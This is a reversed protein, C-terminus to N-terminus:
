KLTNLINNIKFNEDISNDLRFILKPTNRIHIKDSIMYRLYSSAKKLINFVKNKDVKLNFISVYILANSFDDTIKCKTISIVSHILLPNNLAFIEKHLTSILMSNVKEKRKKIM